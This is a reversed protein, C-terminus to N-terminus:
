KGRPEAFLVCAPWTGPLEAAWRELLERPDVEGAEVFLGAERAGVRMHQLLEAHPCTVDEACAGCGALQRSSACARLECNGRGGDHRCGACVPVGELSALAQFFAPYDVDRPGWEALGHGELLEGYRRSLERLSGNGVACSGCWIGCAGIQGKVNELAQLDCNGM